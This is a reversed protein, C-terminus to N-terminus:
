RNGPPSVPGTKARTGVQCVSGKERRSRREELVRGYVRVIAQIIHEQSYRRM